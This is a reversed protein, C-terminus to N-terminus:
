KLEIFEGFCQLAVPARFAFRLGSMFARVVVVRLGQVTLFEPHAHTGGLTGSWKYCPM